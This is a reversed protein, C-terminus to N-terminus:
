RGCGFSPPLYYKWTQECKRPVPPVGDWTQTPPTGWRLESTPTGWRLDPPHGMEPPVRHRPPYGMNPTGWRPGGGCVCVSCCLSCKSRPPRHAEQTWAPPSEQEYIDDTIRFAEETINKKITGNLVSWWRCRIRVQGLRFAITIQMQDQHHSYFHM